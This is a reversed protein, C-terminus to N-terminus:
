EPRGPRPELGLQGQPAEEGAPGPEGQGSWRELPPGPRRQAPEGREGDPESAGKRASYRYLLARAPPRTSHVTLGTGHLGECQDATELLVDPASEHALGVDHTQGHHPEQSATMDEDLVNGPHPLRREGGGEGPRDA